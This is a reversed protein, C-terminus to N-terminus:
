LKRKQEVKKYGIWIVLILEIGLVVVRMIRSLDSFIRITAYILLLIGGFIFGSGISELAITLGVIIAVLAIPAIIFFLNRSYIKNAKDFNVQCTECYPNVQCGNEDMQYAVYGISQNCSEYIPDSYNLRPCSQNEYPGPFQKEYIRNVQTCYDDYEPSPYFADVAFGIFLAFLVAVGITLAVQKLEM